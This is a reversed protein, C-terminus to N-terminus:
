SNLKPSSSQTSSYNSSQTSANTQIAAKVEEKADEAIHQGVESARHMGEKAAQKGREALQDRKSGLARDETRTPPVMAGILAGFALGIAGLALPQERLMYNFGDSARVAQGRVSDRAHGARDRLSASTHSARDRLSASTQSVRNKANSLSGSVGGKLRAAKDKIGAGSSRTTADYDYDPDLGYSASSPTGYNEYGREYQSRNQGYMMWVLGVATLVTPVPNYKVTNVLNRSFEGGNAKGYRLAQDLLQGPSFREELASLTQGIHARQQDIERELQDPNKQAESNLNTSM